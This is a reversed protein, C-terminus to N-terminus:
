KAAPLTRLILGHVQRLFVFRKKKLWTVLFWLREGPNICVANDESTRLPDQYNSLCLYCIYHTSKCNHQM